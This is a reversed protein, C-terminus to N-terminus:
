SNESAKIFNDLMVAADGRTVAANPEIGNETQLIVGLSCLCSLSSEAWAPVDDADAFVPKLTPAAVDLMNALMVAAEARTISKQPLFCLEGDIVTGKIYGLDYAAAIFSKMNSPINGDDAFVTSDTKNVEKIGAANMALMTFEARSMEREPYFYTMAGVRTGSMIGKENMSLAASHYPSDALDVFRVSSESRKIRLDVAVSPSYNGYKDRAVCVFSDKGTSDEYPIYRYSGVARDDFVLLGKEPYSVVEIFTEDGDPDYCPLTGFYTVQEYTSVETANKSLASLTPAYNKKDLTYLKCTMEYPSGNVSFKFESSSVASKPNYTMLAISAASLTHEGTLVTSGVCLEGDSIPPLETVTISEIRELNVARAFDEARFTIKEGRLASKAMFNEECLHDVGTSIPTQSQTHAACSSGIPLFALVLVAGIAVMRKKISNQIGNKISRKM